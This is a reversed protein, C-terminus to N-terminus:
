PALRALANRGPEELAAAFFIGAAAVVTEWFRWCRFRHLSICGSTFFTSFPDILVRLFSPSQMSLPRPFEPYQTRMARTSSSENASELAGERATLAGAGRQVGTAIAAAAPHESEWGVGDRAGAGPRDIPQWLASDRVFPLNWRDAWLLGKPEGDRRSEVPNSM